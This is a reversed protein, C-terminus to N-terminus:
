NMRKFKSNSLFKNIANFGGKNKKFYNDLQLLYDVKLQKPLISALIGNRALLYIEHSSKLPTSKATRSNLYQLLFIYNATSFGGFYAPDDSNVTVMIGQNLLYIINTQSPDSFIQLKYNSLPCVTLPIKHPHGYYNLLAQYNKNQALYSLLKPDYSAKIGHEIRVVHLLKIAQWIYSPSGEEGAHAVGFLGHKELYRYNKLFLSPPYGVENNDLGVGVIHWEPKTIDNYNVTAKSVTWASPNHFNTRYINGSDKITGVPHDRLISMILQVNLGKQRATDLGSQLGDVVEKFSLGNALHTQPDFFIEAHVIHNELCIRGYAKALQFFDQKTKLLKALKNYVILFSHLDSFQYVNKLQQLSHIHYYGGNNNPILLPKKSTYGRKKALSWALGPQLTGEIHVHLATKPMNKILFYFNRYQRIFRAVTSSSLVIQAKIEAYSTFHLFLFPVIVLKILRKTFM